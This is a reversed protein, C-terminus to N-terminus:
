VKFKQESHLKLAEKSLNELDDAIFGLVLGTDCLHRSTNNETVEDLREKIVNIKETLEPNNKLCTWQLKSM